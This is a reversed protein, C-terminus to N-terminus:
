CRYDKDQGKGLLVEETTLAALILTKPFLRSNSINDWQKDVNM